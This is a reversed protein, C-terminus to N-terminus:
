RKKAEWTGQMGETRFEGVLKDDKLSGTAAISEHKAFDMTFTLKNDIWSGNSLTGPGTHESEVTGTVKEGELKLKITATATAGAIKFTTDWEGSIPDSKDFSSEHSLVAARTCTLSAVTTLAIIVLIAFTRLRM